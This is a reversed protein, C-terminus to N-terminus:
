GQHLHKNGSRNEFHAAIKAGFFEAIKLIKILFPVNVTHQHSSFIVGIGLYEEERKIEPELGISRDIVGIRDFNKSRKSAM